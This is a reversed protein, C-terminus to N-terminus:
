EFIIGDYEQINILEKLNVYQTYKKEGEKQLRGIICAVPVKQVKAFDIIDQEKITPHQFWFNEWDEESVIINRAYTDAYVESSDDEYKELDGDLIHKIEHFLSFLFSDLQRTRYTLHIVPNEKYLYCCGSAPAQTIKPTFVFIVGAEELTNKVFNLLDEFSMILNNRIKDAAKELLERNYNPIPGRSSAINYGWRYLVSTAEKTEKQRLKRYKVMGLDTSYKELLEIKGVGFFSMLQRLQQCKDKLSQILKYKIMDKVPYKSLININEQLKQQLNVKELITDFETQMNVWTLADEGLAIAIKEAFAPTIDSKGSVIYSIHKESFGTRQALDKQEIGRSELIEKLLVGPHFYPIGEYIIKLM